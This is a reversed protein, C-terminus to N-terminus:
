DKIHDSAMDAVHLRLDSQVVPRIHIASYCHQHKKDKVQKAFFYRCLFLRNVTNHQQEEKRAKREIDQIKDPVAKM